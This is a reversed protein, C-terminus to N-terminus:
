WPSRRPLLHRSVPPSARGRDRWSLERRHWRRRSYRHPLPATRAVPDAERRLTLSGPLATSEEIRGRAARCEGRAGRLRLPPFAFSLPDSAVDAKGTSNPIAQLFARGWPGSCRLQRGGRSDRDRDWRGEGSEISWRVAPLAVKRCRRLPARCQATTAEPEPPNLACGPWTVLSGERRLLNAHGAPPRCRATKPQTVPASTVLGARLLTRFPPNPTRRGLPLRIMRRYRWM